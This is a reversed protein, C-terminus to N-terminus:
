QNRPTFRVTRTAQPGTGVTISIVVVQPATASKLCVSFSQVNRIIVSSAANFRPTTTGSLYQTETLQGNAYSYSVDYCQNGNAADPQTVLSFATGAVTGSPVSVSACTRGMQVIRALATEVELDTTISSSVVSNMRGGLQVMGLVATSLLALITLALMMEALTMARRNWTSTTNSM